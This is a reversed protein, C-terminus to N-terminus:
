GAAPGRPAVDYFLREGADAARRALATLPGLAATTGVPLPRGYPHRALLEPLPTGALGALVAPHLEYVWPGTSWPHEAPVLCGPWPVAPWVTDTLGDGNAYEDEPLLDELLDLVAASVDRVTDFAARPAGAPLVARVAPADRACFVDILDNM